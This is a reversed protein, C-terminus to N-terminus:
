RGGFGRLAADWDEIPEVEGSSLLPLRPKPRERAEVFRELPERIV